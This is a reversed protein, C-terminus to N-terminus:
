IKGRVNHTAEQRNDMLTALIKMFKHICFCIHLAMAAQMQQVEDFALVNTAPTFGRVYKANMAM